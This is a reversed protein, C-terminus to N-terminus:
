EAMSGAEHVPLHGDFAQRVLGRAEGLAVVAALRSQAALLDRFDGGKFRGGVIAVVGSDFSELARRAAEVNTAKSDNVFRVDGIVQVMELAHELGHFDEIAQQMVGAPVGVLSGVAAAALVDDILHPGLLRISSLPFLREPTGDGRRVIADGDVVLSAGAAGTRSFDFRKARAERALSLAGVDDANVVAWDDATQRAFIRAKAAGYEDLTGHRDLHDASFNMLVAIWPHFTDA